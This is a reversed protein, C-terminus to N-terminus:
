TVCCTLEWQESEGHSRGQRRVWFFAACTGPVDTVQLGARFSGWHLDLRATDIEAGGIAGAVLDKGVMLRVGEDSEAAGDKLPPNIVNSTLFSKGFKGRGDEASVNFEQPIWGAPLGNSEWDSFETEIAETYIWHRGDGDTVNYSCCKAAVTRLLFFTPLLFRM